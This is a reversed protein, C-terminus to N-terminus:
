PTASAPLRLPSRAVLHEATATDTVLVNVWGGLLAARIAEYKSPGGAVGIRREARLLQQRTVGIVLEDLESEVPIGGADVFRLNVQGVAGLEKARDFQEVSFFNDGPELPPVIECHGIGVLAIDMSDLAALAARAHPDTALIADRVGSSSVVGPVRLFMPEAGTMEALRQTALTAEHQLSPSGVGGLMEIVRTAGARQLPRLTAALERLSRSWSTFGITKAELPLMEVISTVATGLDTILQSEDEGIADVVHVERLGYASELAEELEANLGEPVVVITRVVGAAEAASLLRSVRAQSVGLTRAIEAQRMGRTHYLRAVKTMMRTQELEPSPRAM